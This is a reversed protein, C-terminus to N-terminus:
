DALCFRDMNWLEVFHALSSLHLVESKGTCGEQMAFLSERKYENNM